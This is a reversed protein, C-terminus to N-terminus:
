AAQRLWHRAVIPLAFSILAFRALHHAGVFLPDIGLAFALLTMAELGGPAFALLCAQFSTGLLWSAGTAFGIALATTAVFAGLSVFFIRGLLAWDFGVFRSGAWAGVLIQGAIAVVPPLHGPALGTAHALGSVIMAGFMMGGALGAREVILGLGLAAAFILGAMWLPDSAGSLAPALTLGTKAVLTPLVAMLFFLRLVQVVAVRAMDAKTTEAVLFVYSLAGPVSAFFATERSFGPLRRMLAAGSFTIALMACAMILLSAPYNGLGRLMQPTLGAGIAAGSALMAIIRVPGALREAQNCGALVAVAVMAGSLWGAPIGLGNFAAGGALAAAVVRWQGASARLGRVLRRPM